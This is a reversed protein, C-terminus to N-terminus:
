TLSTTPRFDKAKHSAREPKAEEKAREKAKKLRSPIGGDESSQGPYMGANLVHHKCIDNMEANIVGETEMEKAKAEKENAKQHKPPDKM